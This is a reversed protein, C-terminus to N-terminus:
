KLQRYQTLEAAETPQECLFEVGEKHHGWGIHEAPRDARVPYMGPVGGARGVRKKWTTIGPFALCAHNADGYGRVAGPYM